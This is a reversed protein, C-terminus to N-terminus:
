KRTSSFLADEHLSFTISLKISIIAKVNLYIIVLLFMKAILISRLSCHSWLLQTM